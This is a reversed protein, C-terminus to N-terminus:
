KFTTIRQFGRLNIIVMVHLIVTIIMERDTCNRHYPRAGARDPAARELLRAFTFLASALPFYSGSQFRLLAYAYAVFLLTSVHLAPRASACGWRLRRSRGNKEPQM